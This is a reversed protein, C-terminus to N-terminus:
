DASHSYDIDEIHIDIRKIQMGVMDEIARAIKAQVKRSVERVNTDPALVLYLDIAVSNNTVEIQVGEGAGRKFLRNVGGPVSAMSAVGPVSLATMRAMTVLVGPAITTTGPARDTEQEKPDM